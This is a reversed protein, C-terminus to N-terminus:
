LLCEELSIPIGNLQILNYITRLSWRNVFHYSTILALMRLQCEAITSYSMVLNSLISYSHEHGGVRQKCLYIIDANIPNTLVSWADTLGWWEWAVDHRNYIIKAVNCLHSVVLTAVSFTLSLFSPHCTWELITSSCWASAIALSLRTHIVRPYKYGGLRTVKGWAHWPARAKIM